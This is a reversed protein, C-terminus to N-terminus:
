PPSPHPPGGAAGAPPCRSVRHEVSPPAAGEFLAQSGDTVLEPAGTHCGIVESHGAQDHADGRPAKKSETMSRTLSARRSPPTAHYRADVCGPRTATSGRATSAAEISM